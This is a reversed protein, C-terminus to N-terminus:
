NDQRIIGKVKKSDDTFMPNAFTTFDDIAQDKTEQFLGKSSKLLNGNSKLPSDDSSISGDSDDESVDFMETIQNNNSNGKVLSKRVQIELNQQKLSVETKMREVNNKGESTETARAASLPSFLNRRSM